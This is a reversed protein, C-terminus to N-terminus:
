FVFLSGWSRSRWSFGASSVSAMLNSFSTDVTDLIVVSKLAESLFARTMSTGM